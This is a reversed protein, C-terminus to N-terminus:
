VHNKQAIWNSFAFTIKTGLFTQMTDNILFKRYPSFYNKLTDADDIIYDACYNGLMAAITLGTTAGIYYISKSDKDPGALPAIDKSVGIIGPWM